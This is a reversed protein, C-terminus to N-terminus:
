LDAFGFARYDAAYIERSKAQIEADVIEEVAFSPTDSEDSAEDTEGVSNQPILPGVDPFAALDQAVFGERIPRAGPCVRAFASVFSSQARWSARGVVSSRGELNNGVFGLFALFAARHQEVGYVADREAVEKASLLDPGGSDRVFDAVAAADPGPTLYIADLFAQYARLVPHALYVGVRPQAAQSAWETLTSLAGMRRQEGPCFANLLEVPASTAVDFLLSQGDEGTWYVGGNLLDADQAPLREIVEVYGSRELYRRFADFNKIREALSTPNQRLTKEKVRELRGEVGMWQALGNLIAADKCEEYAIPFFTQGKTRIQEELRRYWTETNAAYEEFADPDFEVQADIQTENERVVWLSTQAAHLNSLYSALPRRRLLIKACRPDELIQEIIRADHDFFMRFGPTKDPDRALIADLLRQPRRFRDSMSIGDFAYVGERGVFGPNFLEGHCQLGNIQNIGAELLNSGTRMAAFIVFYDFPRAM